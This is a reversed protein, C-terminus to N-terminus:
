QQSAILTSVRAEMAKAETDRNCAQLLRAYNTLTDTLDRKAATGSAEEIELAQKFLPEAKDYMKQKDYLVALNSLCSAYHPHKTLKQNQYISIADNYNSEAQRYKGEAQYVEALNNKANAVEPRNDGYLNEYISVSSQFMQEAEELKGEAFYIGALNNQAEAFEPSNTGASSKITDFAQKFYDKAEPLIGGEYYLQGLSNQSEAIASPEAKNSERLSLAQQLTTEAQQFNGEAILTLGYSNLAKAVALPSTGTQGQRIDVARKLMMDSDKLKGADRYYDGLKILDDAVQASDKGYQKEDSTLANKSQDELSSLSAKDSQGSSSCSTLALCCPLLAVLLMRSAVVIKM